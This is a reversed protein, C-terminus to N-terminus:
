FFDIISNLNYLFYTVQHPHNLCIFLYRPFMTCLTQVSIWIVHFHETHQTNRIDSVQSLAYQFEGTVLLSIIKSSIQMIQPVPSM